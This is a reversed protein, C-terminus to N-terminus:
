PLQTLPPWKLSARVKRVTVSFGKGCGMCNQVEHDEAWKRTLSQSQKIQLCCCVKLCCCVEEEEKQKHQKKNKKFSPPNRPQGPTVPERQWAGAHCSHHGGSEEEAGGSQGAAERDWRRGKCVQVCGSRMLLFAGKLKKRSLDVM